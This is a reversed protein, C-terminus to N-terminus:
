KGIYKNLARVYEQPDYVFLKDDHRMQQTFGALTRKDVSRFEPMGKIVSLFQKLSYLKFSKKKM